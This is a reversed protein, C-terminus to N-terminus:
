FIEFIKEIVSNEAEILNKEEISFEAFNFTGRPNFIKFKELINIERNLSFFQVKIKNFEDEYFLILLKGQRLYNLLGKSLLILDNERAEAGNFDDRSLLTWFVNKESNFKLNSLANGLLKLNLGSKIPVFYNKDDGVMGNLLCTKIKEDFFYDKNFYGILELIMESCSASQSDIFNIQGFNENEKKYDFNIIPKEFIKRYSEFNEGLLNLNQTGLVFILDFPYIFFISVEKPSLCGKEHAIFIDLKDKEMAYSIEKIEAKATNIALLSKLLFNFKNKIEEIRPLSFYEPPFDTKECIIAVEKDLKKLFLFLALAASIIDLSYDKKFIILIKNAQNLLKHIEQFIPSNM